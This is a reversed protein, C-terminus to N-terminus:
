TLIPFLPGPRMRGERLFRNVNAPTAANPEKKTTRAAAMKLTIIATVLQILATLLLVWDKM